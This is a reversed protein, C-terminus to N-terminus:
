PNTLPAPRDSAPAATHKDWLRTVRVSGDPLTRVTIRADPCNHSHRWDWFSNNLKRAALGEYRRTDGPQFTEWRFLTRAKFPRGIKPKLFSRSKTPRKSTYGRKRVAICGRGDPAETVEVVYNRGTQQLIAEILPGAIRLPYQPLHVPSGMLALENALTVDDGDGLEVRQNPEITYVRM